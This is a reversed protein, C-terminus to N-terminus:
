GGFKKLILQSLFQVLFMIIAGAIILKSRSMDDIWNKSENDHVKRTEIENNVKEKIIEIMKENTSVRGNTVGVQNELKKVWEILNGTKEIQTAQNTKIEELDKKLYKMKYDTM